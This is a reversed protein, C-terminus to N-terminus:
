RPRWRALRSPHRCPGPATAAPTEEAPEGQAPRQRLRGVVGGDLECAAHTDPVHHVHSASEPDLRVEARVEGEREAADIMAFGIRDKVSNAPNQGELKGVIRPKVGQTVRNLRVLPTRGILETADNAINM